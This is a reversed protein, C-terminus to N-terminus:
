NLRGVQCIMRSGKHALVTYPPERAEIGHEALLQARREWILACDHEAQERTVLASNVCWPKLRRHIFDYFFGIFPATACHERAFAIWAHPAAVETYGALRFLQRTTEADGFDIIITDGPALPTYTLAAPDPPSSTVLSESKVRHPAAEAGGHLWPALIFFGLILLAHRKM